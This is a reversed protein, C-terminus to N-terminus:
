VSRRMGCVRGSAGNLPARSSSPSPHSLSPPPLLLRFCPIPCTPIVSLAAAIEAGCAVWALGAAGNLPATPIVSLAAAIEAGCAVWVLGAAGNLPATPIVSLAAAIEAGCAVWLLGAAGNLPATPIVSVAAAIEAGCAVWVLGAAGNLPATPIVSLAAAIEAGCAVWVLGAAGNLPARSSSPSPHSLSPPPLLLRFSPIPCTPIVSLAAAIEEGCAVWVLGAAGNLPATPIVSLAAAIEAGCAVWVLGAAGNLPATPKVSLAAAIEAGCAVWLLGAAGNLPAIPIVSLAAAIEAGCAVWVLGAAGNLPARSSSPSPHSLSPPPLLLRFSPIPCTPIVSLAAAIEEGCAVWVLGAAGNLPATPIVSLATAIEAGCAVWVLGAAGNLPARSSSPSPHSLSPPPLLLRFSPIPCTPIVSLAAAIEEGCAVWVLGAAGNLPATPIDSLAAAIEAGCAVWVLGAAGNLPARSSSPSHHSLSPPPPALPFFPNPVHTQCLTSSSDRRRMGGVASWCCRKSPSLGAAGNLPARSSSPSPHSLSPPPLLLRFSPIPCTPIVSLAAAIEEGCAVWVLGAAGNLPARSSSPSPHSLSPPPPALPFFPNPVHPHCLTSSSDRRRMGGVGSWCCRKSPSQFLLSLPPISLPPPLLLRFSPIPCTPIVSLAAAIEEGCAVWVLGAAGNLPATPIVSLAAAIEAGCAVWVLGAAGNLPATPIVSLAAAIEAGCAVWVLGAAGNLPA